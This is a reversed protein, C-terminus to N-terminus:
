LFMGRGQVKALKDRLRDWEIVIDNLQKQLDVGADRGKQFKAGLEGKVQIADVLKAKAKM